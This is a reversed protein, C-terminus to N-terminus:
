GWGDWIGAHYSIGGVAFGRFSVSHSVLFLIIGGDLIFYTTTPITSHGKDVAHFLVVREMQQGLGPLLEAIGIWAIGWGEGEQTGM